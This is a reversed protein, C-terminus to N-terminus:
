KKCNRNNAFRFIWISKQNRHYSIM